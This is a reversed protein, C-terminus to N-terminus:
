RRKRPAQEDGDPEDAAAPETEAAAVQAQLQDGDTCSACAGAVQSGYATTVAPLAAGCSTCDRDSKQAGTERPLAESTESM